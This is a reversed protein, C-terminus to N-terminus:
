RKQELFDENEFVGMVEIDTQMDDDSDELYLLCCCCAVAAPLALLRFLQLDSELRQLFM